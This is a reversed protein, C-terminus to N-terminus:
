FFLKEANQSTREAVTEADLGFVQALRGAVHVLFAPENRHGRFPVPTLYPADTELVIRDLGVAPLQEVFRANKYTSVGGVGFYFDGLRGYVRAQEAGGSFAHIVGRLRGADFRKLSAVTEAFAVRSHISVPLGREVAAALQHEFVKKQQELHSKDWYLDLGIEGIATWPFAELHADFFALERQWDEQVSTPHVGLMVRCFDPYAAQTALLSEYSGSDENPLLVQEVGAERARRVVADRDADFATDYIHTHTDIIRMTDYM